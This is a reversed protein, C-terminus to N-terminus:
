KLLFVSAKWPAADLYLGRSLLDDGNWDYGATELQDELRWKKGALDNWPLRVHCGAKIPRM